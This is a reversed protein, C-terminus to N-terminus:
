SATRRGPGKHSSRVCMLRSVCGLRAGHRGWVLVGMAADRLAGALVDADWALRLPAAWRLWEGGLGGGGSNTSLV